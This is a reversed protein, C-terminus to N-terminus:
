SYVTISAPCGAPIFDPPEGGCSSSEVDLAYVGDPCDFEDDTSMERTYRCGVTTTHFNFVWGTELGNIELWGGCDAHAGTWNCGPSSGLTLTYTGDCGGGSCSSGSVVVYYTTECMEECYEDQTVCRYVLHGGVTVTGARSYALHGSAMAKLHEAM